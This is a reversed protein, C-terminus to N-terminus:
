NRRKNRLSVIGRKTQVAYGADTLKKLKRYVTRLHAGILLSLEDVRMDREELAQLMKRCDDDDLWGVNVLEEFTISYCFLTTTKPMKAGGSQELERYEFPTRINYKAIAQRAERVYKARREEYNIYYKSKGAEVRNLIRFFQELTKQHWYETRGEIKDPKPFQRNRRMAYFRHAPLGWERIIDKSTFFM